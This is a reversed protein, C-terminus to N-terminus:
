PRNAPVESAGEGLRDGANAAAPLPPLGQQVLEPLGDMVLLAYTDADLVVRMRVPLYQLAPAFWVEAILDRKFPDLERQPRAHITDVPGAPTDMTQAEGVVYSWQDSRRSLALPFGVKDGAKVPTPHTGLLWALQVFQSASDQTGVPAPRRTGDQMVLFGGQPGGSFDFNMTVRRARTFIVRTDEEYRRPVLGAASLRGDSVVRRSMVPAARPGISVDLEVRYRDGERLWLVQASGSFDGRYNGKLTYRIRTSPPWPDAAAAPPAAEASAQPAQPVALEPVPEPVPPVPEPTPQPELAAVEGQSSSSFGEGPESVAPSPPLRKRRKPPEPKLEGNITVNVVEIASPGAQWGAVADFFERGVWAHVLLVALVVGVVALRRRRSTGRMTRDM